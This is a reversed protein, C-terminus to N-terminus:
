CGKALITRPSRHWPSGTSDQGSSWSTTTRSTRSPAWAVAGPPSRVLRFTLILEPAYVSYRGSTMQRLVPLCGAPRWTYRPGRRLIQSCCDASMVGDAHRSRLPQACAGARRLDQDMFSLASSSNEHSPRHSSQSPIRRTSTTSAIGGPVNASAQWTCPSIPRM